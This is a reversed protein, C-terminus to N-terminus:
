WVLWRATGTSLFILLRANEKNQASNQAIKYASNKDGSDPIGWLFRELSVVGEEHPKDSMLRKLQKMKIWRIGSVSHDYDYVRWIEHEDKWYWIWQTALTNSPDAVYSKTSLRRIMPVIPGFGNMVSLLKKDLRITVDYAVDDLLFGDSFLIFLFRHETNVNSITCYFMETEKRQKCQRCKCM